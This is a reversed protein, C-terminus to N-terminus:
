SQTTFSLAKVYDLLEHLDALDDNTFYDPNQEVFAITRNIAPVFQRLFVPDDQEVALNYFLYGDGPENPAHMYAPDAGWQAAFEEPSLDHDTFTPPAIISPM